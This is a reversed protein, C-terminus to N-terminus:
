IHILSLILGFCTDADPSLALVSCGGAAMVGLLGPSSMTFNHSAPLVALFVTAPSLGCIEASARVSYLYDDHTRPILKPLGTTGGSLQLFAVTSPDPAAPERPAAERLSSFPVGGAPVDEDRAVVVVDRVPAVAAAVRLATAAHDHRDHRAVTVLAVAGSHEAFYRM